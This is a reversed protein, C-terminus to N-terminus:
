LEKSDVLRVSTVKIKYYGTPPHATPPPSDTQAMPSATPAPALPGSLNMEGRETASKCCEADGLKNCSNHQVVLSDDSNKLCGCCDPCNCSGDGIRGYKFNKCANTGVCSSSGITVHGGQAVAYCARDGSCSDDGVAAVGGQGLYSCAYVGSLCSNDGITIDGANSGADDCAQNGNCSYDGVVARGGYGLYYCAGGKLCSYDGITIDGANSGADDCAQNGNCSYDGVVADGGDGLGACVWQGTVCSGDGEERDLQRGDGASVAVMIIIAVLVFFTITRMAIRDTRLYISLVALHSCGSLQAIEFISLFM